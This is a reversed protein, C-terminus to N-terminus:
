GYNENSISFMSSYEKKILLLTINFINLAIRLAKITSLEEYTIAREIPSIEKGYLRYLYFIEILAFIAHFLFIKPYLWSLTFDRLSKQENYFNSQSVVSASLTPYIYVSNNANPIKIKTLLTKCSRSTFSLSLLVLILVFCRISKM